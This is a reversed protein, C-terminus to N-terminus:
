TIEGGALRQGAPEDGFYSAIVAPDRRVEQPAGSAIIIGADLAVVQDAIGMVLEVSHEVLLVAGGRALVPRAAAGCIDAAEAPGLGAAPEDLMLLRPEAAVARALETRRRLAHPLRAVKEHALHTLGLAAVARRCRDTGGASELPQPSWPSAETLLGLTVNQWVTAEELLTPTQFTRALGLRARRHVSVGTMDQGTILIRGTSPALGSVCNFITTKGAGNPGIIATLQGAAASFGVGDLAQVGGFRVCLDAVELVAAASQDLKAVRTEHHLM